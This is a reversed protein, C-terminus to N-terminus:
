FPIITQFTRRKRHSVKKLSIELRKSVTGLVELVLADSLRPALNACVSLILEDLCTCLRSIYGESVELLQYAEEDLDYNMRVAHRDTVAGGGM